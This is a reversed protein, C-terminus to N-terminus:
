FLRKVSYFNFQSKLHLVKRIERKEKMMKALPRLKLRHGSVSIHQYRVNSRFNNVYNYRLFRVIINLLSMYKRIKFIFLWLLVRPITYGRNIFLCYIRTFYRGYIEFVSINHMIIKRKKKRYMLTKNRGENRFLSQKKKNFVKLQYVRVCWIRLISKNHSTENIETPISRQFSLEM